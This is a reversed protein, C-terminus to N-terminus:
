WFMNQAGLKITSGKLIEKVASLSTFPPCVVVEREGIKSLNKCLGEVLTVAEKIQKYMKWNGAIIPKRM